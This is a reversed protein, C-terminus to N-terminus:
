PLEVWYFGQNPGLINNRDFMLNPIQQIKFTSLNLVYYAVDNKDIFNKKLYTRTEHKLLLFIGDPSISMVPLQSSNKFIVNYADVNDTGEPLPAHDHHLNAFAFLPRGDHSYIWYEITEPLGSKNRWQVLWKDDSLPQIEPYDNDPAPKVLTVEKTEGTVPDVLEYDCFPCDPNQPKSSRAIYKGSPSVTQFNPIILETGDLKTWKYNQITAQGRSNEKGEAWYIGDNFVPELRVVGITSNTVQTLDSGNSHIVFIQKIGDKPAIFGIWESGSFWYSYDSLPSTNVVNEYLLVIEQPKALDMTFLDTKGNETKRLAIKKGDPSVGICSYGELLLKNKKSIIDYMYILDLNEKWGVGTEWLTSGNFSLLLGSRGGMPTPTFTPTNTPVPSPTFTSTPMATETSVIKATPSCSTLILAVLLVTVINTIKM